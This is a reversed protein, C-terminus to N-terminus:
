ITFFLSSNKSFFQQISKLDRFFQSIFFRTFFYLFLLLKTDKENMRKGDNRRLGSSTKGVTFHLVKSRLFAKVLINPFKSCRWTDKRFIGKLFCQNLSFYFSTFAFVFFVFFFWTEHYCRFLYSFSNSAEGFAFSGQHTM